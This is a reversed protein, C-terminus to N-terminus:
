PPTEAALSRAPTEPQEAATCLEMPLAEADSMEEGVNWLSCTQSGPAPLNTRRLGGEKTHLHGQGRRTRVCDDMQSGDTDQNDGKVLAGTTM